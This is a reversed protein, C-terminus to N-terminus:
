VFNDYTFADRIVTVGQTLNKTALLHCQRRYFFFAALDTNRLNAAPLFDFRLIKRDKRALKRYHNVCTQWQDL